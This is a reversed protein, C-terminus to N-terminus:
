FAFVADGVSVLLASSGLAPFHGPFVVFVLFPACLPVHLSLRPGKVTQLFRDFWEVRAALQPLFVAFRTAHPSFFLFWFFPPSVFHLSSCALPGVGSFHSM